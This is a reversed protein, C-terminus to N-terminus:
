RLHLTLPPQSLGLQLLASIPQCRLQAAGLLRQLALRCLRASQFATQLLCSLLKALCPGSFLRGPCRQLLPCVPQRGLQASSLFCQLRLSCFRSSKLATHQLCCLLERLHLTM